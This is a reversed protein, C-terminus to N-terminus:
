WGAKILTRGLILSYVPLTLVGLLSGTFLLQHIIKNAVTVPFEKAPPAPIMLPSADIFIAFALPFLGVLVLGIGVIIGFWRLGKAMIGKLRTNSYVLWAGFVGQPVMYLIDSVWKPFLLLLCVVVFGISGVGTFLLTNSKIVAPAPMLQCLRYAVPILCVFQLAVAGDHLRNMLVGTQPDPSRAMMYGILSFIALLGIIGAAVAARGAYQEGKPVFLLHQQSM